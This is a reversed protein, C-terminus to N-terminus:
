IQMHRQMSTVLIFFKRDINKVDSEQVKIILSQFGSPIHKIEIIKSLNANALSKHLDMGNLQPFLGDHSWIIETYKCVM